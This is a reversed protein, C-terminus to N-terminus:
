VSNTNVSKNLKKIQLKYASAFILSFITLLRIPQSAHSPLDALKDEENLPLRVKLQASSPDKIEDCTEM